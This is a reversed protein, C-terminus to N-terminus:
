IEAGMDLGNVRKAWLKVLTFHAPWVVAGKAEFECPAGFGVRCLGLVKSDRRPVCIMRSNASGVEEGCPEGIAVGESEWGM